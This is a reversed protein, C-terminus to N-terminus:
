KKFILLGFTLVSFIVMMGAPMFKYTGLYRNAFFLALIGSLAIAGIKATGSNKFMGYSCLGLLLGFTIGAYLSPKSHGIYYGTLGGSFVLFAYIATLYASFDM